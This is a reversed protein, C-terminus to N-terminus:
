VLLINLLPATNQWIMFFGDSKRYDLPEYDLSAYGKTISKLKDYFDLVIENLPMEYIIMVRTPTLYKIERQVGRKEECLALSAGSSSTPCTSTPWSLRSKM